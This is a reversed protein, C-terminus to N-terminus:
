KNGGQRIAASHRNFISKFFGNIFSRFKSDILYVILVVPMITNYLLLLIDGSTVPNKEKITILFSQNYSGYSNLVFVKVTYNGQYPFDYSLESSNGEIYRGNVYWMYIGSSGATSISHIGTNEFVKEITRIATPAPLVEETINYRNESTIQILYNGPRKFIYVVYQGNFTENNIRWRINYNRVVSSFTSFIVSDNTYSPSQIPLGKFYAQFVKARDARITENTSSSNLVLSYLTVMSGSGVASLMLNQKYINTSYNLVNKGNLAFQLSKGGYYIGYNLFGNISTNYLTESIYRVSNNHDNYIAVLSNNSGFGIDTSHQQMSRNLNSIYSTDPYYGMLSSDNNNSVYLPSSTQGGLMSSYSIGEQGQNLKTLYYNTYSLPSYASFGSLLGYGSVPINLEGASAFSNGNLYDSFFPFVYKGNDYANYTGFDRVDYPLYGLDLAPQPTYNVVSDLARLNTSKNAFGIYFIGYSGGITAKYNRFYSVGGPFSISVTASTSTITATGHLFANLLHGNNAYFAINSLNSNEVSQFDSPDFTFNLTFPNSDYGYGYVGVAVSSYLINSPLITTGSGSLEPAEGLYGESSLKDEIKPYIRLYITQNISHDIKLYISATDNIISDIWAYIPTGNSSYFMINSFGSNISNLDMRTLIIEPDYDRSYIPNTVNLIIPISEYSLLSSVIASNSVQKYTVDALNTESPKILKRLSGTTNFVYLAFKDNWIKPTYISTDNLLESFIMGGGNLVSGSTTIPINSTTHLVVIASIDQSELLNGVLSANGIAFANGIDQFASINPFLSAFNQYGYPFGYVDYYSVGMDAYVLSSTNDPLIMVRSDSYPKLADTLNLAYNPIENNKVSLPNSNHEYNIVPLSSTLIIIVFIASLTPVLIKKLSRGKSKKSGIYFSLSEYSLAFFMVYIFFQPINLFLPYNFVGLIPISNYLGIFTGNYVGFQFLIMFLIVIFLTYYIKKYRGRYIFISAISFMILFLYLVAYWTSEYNLLTLQNSVYPLAFLSVEFNSAAYEFKTISVLSSVTSANTSAANSFLGLSFVLSIFLPLSITAIVFLWLVYNKFKILILRRGSFLLDIFVVPIVVLGIFKIYDIGMFIFLLSILIASDVLYQTNNYIHYKILFALILPLFFFIGTYELASIGFLIVIPNVSYFLTATIRTSRKFGLSSMLYYFGLPTLLPILVLYYDWVVSLIRVNSQFIFTFLIGFYGPNISFFQSLVGANFDPLSLDGFLVIHNVTFSYYMYYWIIGFFFELIIIETLIKRSSKSPL